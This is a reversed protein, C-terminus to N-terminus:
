HVIVFIYKSQAHVRQEWKLYEQKEQEIFNFATSALGNSDSLAKSTLALNLSSSDKNFSM